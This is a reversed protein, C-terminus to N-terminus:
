AAQLPVWVDKNKFRGSISYRYAHEGAVVLGQTPGVEMFKGAPVFSERWRTAGAIRGQTYLLHDFTATAHVKGDHVHVTPFFLQTADRTPFTFAMPHVRANGAKLKFVVFGHDAYAPLQDWTKAPLRFREDLRSFDAVTPVFSADFSGVSQVELPPPAQRDAKPGGGGFGGVLFGLNLAVFFDECASFDLFRVAKEGSGPKVPVPLIMAVESKTDLLMSYVVAQTGPATMRAFIQTDAVRKVPGSFCCMGFLIREGRGGTM